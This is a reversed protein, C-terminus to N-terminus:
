CRQSTTCASPSRSVRARSRREASSTQWELRFLADATEPPPVVTPQVVPLSIDTETGADTSSWSFATSGYWQLGSNAARTWEDLVMGMALPDQVGEAVRLISPKDGFLHISGTLVCDLTYEGSADPRFTAEWGGDLSKFDDEWYGVDEPEYGYVQVGDHYVTFAVKFYKYQAVKEMRFPVAKLVVAGNEEEDATCTLFSRRQEAARPSSM